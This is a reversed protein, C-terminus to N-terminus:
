TGGRVARVLQRVAWEGVQRADDHDLQLVDRMVIMSEVGVLMAVAAELREFLSEVTPATARGAVGGADPLVPVGHGELSEGYTRPPSRVM